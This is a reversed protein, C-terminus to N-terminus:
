KITNRERLFTVRDFPIGCLQCFDIAQEVTPSTKGNEWNWVTQRGVHLTEAIEKQTKRANIRAAAITIKFDEM